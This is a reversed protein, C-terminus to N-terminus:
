WSLGTGQALRGANATAFAPYAACVDQAGTKNLPGGDDHAAPATLRRRVTCLLNRMEMVEVGDAKMVARILPDALIRDIPHATPLTM